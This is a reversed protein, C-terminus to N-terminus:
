AKRKHRFSDFNYNYNYNYSDLRRSIFIKIERGQDFNVNIINLFYSTMDM